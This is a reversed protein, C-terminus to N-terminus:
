AAFGRHQAYIRDDARHKAVMRDYESFDLNLFLPVLEPDFQTGANLRIERFVEDRDRASRYTRTSSMADFADALAIIRAVLPVDEGCLAHPYGKGDWREHHYLVGVLVDQLEPIDKLIRYGMEPHRRIWEFEDPTLDGAKQLVAEPVGIKGVDHVLGTIRMRSVTAEDLGAARGLLQTLHAVRRSHGCTYRDKADISATLAELTGLFMANLNDYLASNELFIAMHTAAAGLLKMDVSSAGTQDGPRQGAVVVGMLNSDACIPHALVTPGLDAFQSHEAREGPELVCPQGIQIENLLDRALVQVRRPATPAVGTMILRGALSKLKAGDDALQVGIWRYPLTQLLEECAMRVFREPEQQVTMNGIITYLLNIEEFSDGLQQGVSEIAARDAETRHHDEHLCKALQVIRPIDSETSPPLQSLMTQTMKFDLSAAQCMLVLQESKLLDHTPIVVVSYGERGRRLSLPIPALWVGPMMECPKPDAESNWRKAADELAHRVPGTNGFLMSFWDSMRRDVRIMKGQVDCIMLSLGAGRLRTALPEFGDGAIKARDVLKM